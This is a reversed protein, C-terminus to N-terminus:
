LITIQEIAELQVLSFIKKKPQSSHQYTSPWEIWVTEVELATILPKANDSM